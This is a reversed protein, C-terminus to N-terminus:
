VGADTSAPNVTSVKFDSDGFPAYLSATGDSEIVFVPGRSRLATALAAHSSTATSTADALTTNAAALAATATVKADEDTKVKDILEKFTM